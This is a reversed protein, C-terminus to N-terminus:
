VRVPQSAEWRRGESNIWVVRLTGSRTPRVAFRLIPNPSVAATIHFDAVKQDDLYVLVQKLYFEPRERVFRGGRESLGTDSAHDVRARVEVVEGVKAARALRLQPNGIRDRESPHPPTSCGGEAVRYERTATFKGHRSCEAVARLVGGAGSRMPFAVWARGSLPTFAFTGKHPVPDQPVTIDISRIYHGPEMPHDVSVQVPVATADEAIIPLDIRVQHERELASQAWARPPVLLAAGGGVLLVRRSLIM